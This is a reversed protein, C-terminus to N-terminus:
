LPLDSRSASSMLRIFIFKALSFESESSAFVGISRFSRSCVTLYRQKESMGM